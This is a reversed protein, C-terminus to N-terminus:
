DLGVLPGKAHGASGIRWLMALIDVYGRTCILDSHHTREEEDNKEDERKQTETRPETKTM